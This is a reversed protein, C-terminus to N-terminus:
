NNIDISFMTAFHDSYSLRQIAIDSIKINRYLIYDLQHTTIFFLNHTINTHANSFGKDAVFKLFKGQRFLSSYNLDGLIIAPIDNNKKGADINEIVKSLQKRRKANSTFAALHTNAIIIKTNHYNFKTILSTRERRLRLVRKEIISHGLTVITTEELSLKKKNLLTLEGFDRGKIRFSTAFQFDYDFHKLYNQLFNIRAKPFEQFCIIDFEEPLSVLWELIQDLQKGFFINYALVSLMTSM